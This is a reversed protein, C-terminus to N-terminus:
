NLSVVQHLFGRRWFRRAGGTVVRNSAAGLGADSRVTLSGALLNVTGTFTNAGNLTLSGAMDKTLGATGAVISNITAGVTSGLTSITPDAGTLTLTGDSLVYGGTSFTLRNATIPAGLTVTGATGGFIANDLGPNNWTSYPGSVGDNSQSWFGSTTNWVGSGGSGVATANADWYRDVGASAQSPLGLLAAASVGCLLAAASRNNLARARFGVM